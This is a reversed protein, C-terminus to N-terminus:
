SATFYGFVDIVLDTSGPSNDYVYISDDGPMTEFLGFGAINQGKGFNLASTNPTAYKPSYAILSGGATEDTATLNAAMTADAPIQSAAPALEFLGTSFSAIKNNTTRTDVARYPTVPVFAQPASASFYGSVDAILDVSGSLAGNYLKIEGDAAIPVIVTNSVTQGPSYNLSSTSPVGSGDPEAAIFGGGTANTETVHVAVATADAPISDVGTIPLSLSSKAGVKAKAAGTGARTDLIRDPVSPQYGDGATQSFYGTVDIIADASTGTNGNVCLALLGNTVPVIASNAVTQGANYNLNSANGSGLVFLGNGVTNTATLNVAVATAGSPIGDVGGVQLHWCNGNYLHGQLGGTGTRSDMIRTPAIPTFSSANTATSTTASTTGGVTLNATDTISYTGPKAYTHPTITAYNTTSAPVTQSQGDGWNITYTVDPKAVTASGYSYIGFTTAQAMNSSLSVSRASQATATAVVTPTNKEQVAGRDCYAPTGAGTVAVIPDGTCADGFFDTALMGPASGNASNYQPVSPANTGYLTVEPNTNRDHAGQGTAADLADATSYTNGAWSYAQQAGGPYVVNYDSTTSAASASDVLVTPATNTSSQDTVINNEISTGTSGSVDIASVGVPAYYINNSVIETNSAGTVSIGGYTGAGVIFDTSVVDGSSGSDILVDTALTRTLTVNSSTGTIHVGYATPRARMGDLTIHTSGNVSIGATAFARNFMAGEFSVYSAGDFSLSPGTQGTGDTISVIGLGTTFVIPAAATGVSKIDVQGAYTGPEITVTDGAVAANAAAQITCYPATETGTGSDTCSASTDSVYLVSSADAHAATIGTLALSVSVAATAARRTSRM